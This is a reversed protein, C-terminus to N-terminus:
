PLKKFNAPNLSISGSPKAEDKYFDLVEAVIPKSADSSLDFKVWIYRYKIFFGRQEIIKAITVETHAPVRGVLIFEPGGVGGGGSQTIGYSFSFGDSPFQQSTYRKPDGEEKIKYLLYERDTSYKGGILSIYEAENSIDRSKMACGALFGFLVMLGLVLNLGGIVLRHSKLM